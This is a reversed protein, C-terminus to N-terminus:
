TVKLNIVSVHIGMGKRIGMATNDTTVVKLRKPDNLMYTYSAIGGQNDNDMNRESAHYTLRPVISVLTLIWEPWYYNLTDGDRTRYQGGVVVERISQGLPSMVTPLNHERGWQPFRELFNRYSSNAAINSRLRHSMLAVNPEVGCAEIHLMIQLEISQVIDTNPEDWDAVVNQQNVGFDFPVNVGGVDVNFSGQTSFMDAAFKEKTNLITEVHEEQYEAVQSLAEAESSALRPDSTTPRLDPGLAQYNATHDTSLLDSYSQFFPRASERGWRAQSVQESAEPRPKWAGLRRMSEKTNYIFEAATFTDPTMGADDLGFFTRLVPRNEHMHQNLIRAGELHAQRKFIEPAQGAM